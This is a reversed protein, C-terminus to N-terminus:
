GVPGPIARPELFERLRNRVAAPSAERNSSQVVCFLAEDENSFCRDPTWSELPTDKWLSFRSVLTHPTRESGARVHHLDFLGQETLFLYYLSYESWRFKQRFGPVLRQWAIRRHPRVLVDVWTGTGAGTGLRELLGRCVPTALLVPTVAIGPEELRPDVGLMRASSMWWHPHSEKTVLQLLARGGPVLTAYDIPHTCVVDADFTLYFDTRVIRSAALKVIQQKTWGGVSPYQRLEPILETESVVTIPFRDSWSGHREVAAVDDPPVVVLIEEFMEPEAFRTLSRFLIDARALDNEDRNGGVRLPLVGSIRDSAERSEMAM